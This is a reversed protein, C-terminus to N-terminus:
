LIQIREKAGERGGERWRERMEIIGLFVDLRGGAGV